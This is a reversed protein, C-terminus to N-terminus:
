LKDECFITVAKTTRDSFHVEFTVDVNRYGSRVGQMKYTGPTLDLRRSTFQGLRGIRFIRVETKGDSKFEVSVPESYREVMRGLRNAKDRLKPAKASNALAIEFIDRAYRLHQLIELKMPDSLYEDVQKNLELANEARKKGALAYSAHVDIALARDYIEVVREWEEAKELEMGESSLRRLEVRREVNELQLELDIIDAVKDPRLARVTDFWERAKDTNENELAVLFQSMARRYDRDLILAEVLLLHDRAPQFQEDLSVAKDYMQRALDLDDDREHIQGQAVWELVQPLNKARQLGAQAETNTSVIALAMQYHEIALKSDRQAFAADGAELSRQLREPRSADLQEMKALADRYGQLAEDFHQESLDRHAKSLVTLVEGYSTGLPEAGWTKIAQNELRAQLKLADQRAVQAESDDSAPVVVPPSESESVATETPTPIEEPEKSSLRPLILIVSLVGPVLLGFGLVRVLNLRSPESILPPPQSSSPLDATNRTEGGAGAGEIPRKGTMAM